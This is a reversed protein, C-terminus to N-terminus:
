KAIEMNLFVNPHAMNEYPTCEFGKIRDNVMNWQERQYVFIYPLEENINLAWEEYIETRKEQDLEKRGAELLQDNKENKFQVANNGSKKAQSSHFISYADPDISLSWAMNYMDFDQEEYVADSLANFDMYNVEISVGIKGWNDILVPILQDVWEVDPYTSYVFNLKMGDKERIGDSGLEWGAEELLEIAKDPNYEYKNMKEELTDTYAWSVPSLPVHCVEGHG